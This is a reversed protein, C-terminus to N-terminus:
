LVYANSIYDDPYRGRLPPYPHFLNTWDTKCKRAARTFEESDFDHLSPREAWILGVFLDKAAFRGFVRMGPRPDRSRIDWVEDADPQLRGMYAAKARRSDSPVQIRSAQIFNELDARLSGWRIGQKPDTWHRNLSEDIDLSVYLIRRQVAGPDSLPLRYLRGQQALVNIQSLISM